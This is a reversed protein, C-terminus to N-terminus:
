APHGPSLDAVDEYRLVPAGERRASTVLPELVHGLHDGAGGRVRDVVRGVFWDCRDLVPVGEPGESWDVDAFKDREDGTLEGFHRALDRDDGRLVHVGLMAARRALDSTHNVDSIWVTFRRPEISTQAAFGVLCGSREEGVAATVVFMPTGLDCALADFAEHQESAAM